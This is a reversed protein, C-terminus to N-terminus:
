ALQQQGDQLLCINVLCSSLKFNYVFPIANTIKLAAYRGSFM